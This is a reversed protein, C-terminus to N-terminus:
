TKKESEEKQLENIKEYIEKFEQEPLNEMRELINVNEGNLLIIFLEITKNELETMIESMKKGKAKNEDADYYIAKLSRMERATIFPKLVVENQGSKTKFTIQENQM